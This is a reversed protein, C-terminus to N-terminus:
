RAAEPSAHDTLALFVDDLDPQHLTLGDVPTGDLQDLLHRLSDVGGDCPVTLTLAADDRRVGGGLATAAAALARDDVFRLLVHGGPVQRKLEDPTGEAILQGHDLVGIRQALQDAEDLYQTTLLITV